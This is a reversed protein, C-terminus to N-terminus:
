FTWFHILGTTLVLALPGKRKKKDIFSLDTRYINIKNIKSFLADIHKIFM